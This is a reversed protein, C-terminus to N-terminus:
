LCWSPNLKAQTKRSRGAPDPTQPRSLSFKGAPRLMAGSSPLFIRERGTSRNVNVSTHQFLKQGPLETDHGADSRETKFSEGGGVRWMQRYEALIVAGQHFSGM